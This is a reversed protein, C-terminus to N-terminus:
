NDDQMANIEWKLEIGAIGDFIVLLIIRFCQYCYRVSCM